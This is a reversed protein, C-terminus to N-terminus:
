FIKCLKHIPRVIQSKSTKVLASRVLKDSGEFVTVIRGLPWKGRTTKEYVILVLDGEKLNLSEKYWKKREQLEPM